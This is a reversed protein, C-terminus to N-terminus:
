LTGTTGPTEVTTDRSIQFGGYALAAALLIGLWAGFGLHDTEVLLKILLLALVAIGAILHVQGWTIPIDPLKVTTFAAIIVQAVMVITLLLALIGWFGNPSEIASRTFSIIGLDVSHWPLFLLDIILLIGAAAVIKQGLSLKDLDV